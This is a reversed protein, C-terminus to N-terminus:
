DGGIEVLLPFGRHEPRSYDRVVERLRASGPRRQGHADESWVERQMLWTHGTGGDKGKALELNVPAFDSEKTRWLLVVFEASNELDGAEKLHHKTPRQGTEGDKPRALQSVIILAVGLRAAHVKLQKMLWRLENRRDQQRKSAEIEGIYDIVILRAGRAAMRSMRAIVDQETGGLCESLLVKDRLEALKRTASDINRMDEIEHKMRLQRSSLGSFASVFRSMMRFLSDEVSIIGVRTGDNAAALALELTFSSKGVNTAGGVVMVDGGSLPGVAAKLLPLGVSIGGGSQIKELEAMWRGLLEGPSAVEVGASLRKEARQRAEEATSTAADLDGAQLAQLAQLLGARLERAARMRKMKSVDHWAGPPPSLVVNTVDAVLQDNGRETGIVLDMVRCQREHLAAHPSEHAVREAAEVVRRMLPWSYDDLELGLGSYAAFDQVAFNACAAEANHDAFRGDNASYGFFAASDPSSNM